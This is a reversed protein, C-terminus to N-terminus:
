KLINPLMKKKTSCNADCATVSKAENAFLRLISNADKLLVYMMMYAGFEALEEAVQGHFGTFNTREGVWSFFIFLLLLSFSKVPIKVIKLMQWIRARYLLILMSLILIGVMPHVLKGYLGMQSYQIMGGDPNTFFVRGWSIERMILLFFYITGAKWFAKSSGGWYAYKYSHAKICYFMGGILCLMQLNEIIGNEDGVWEPLIAELIFM